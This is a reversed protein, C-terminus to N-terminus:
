MKRLHVTGNFASLNIDADGGGVTGTLRTQAEPKPTPPLTAGKIPFDTIIEGGTVVRANIKFSADAPLMLTVDGSTTRLDYSGGPALAGEFSVGGSVTKAVVRTHTVGQLKIEGSTSNVQLDDRPSVPRANTAVVEGSLSRLRVPGRADDLSINGSFCDVDVARSVRSVDVDGSACEIRAEAVDSVVVDGSQIHLIVTAGRPVNLEISGSGFEGPLIEETGAGVLVSVRSVPGSAAPQQGSAGAAAAAEAHRLEIRQADGSYARVEKREWGQVVVDGSELSLEVVVDPTAAVRREVRATAEEEAAKKAGARPAPKPTEEARAAPALAAALLLSLTLSALKM